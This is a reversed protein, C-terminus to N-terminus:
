TFIGVIIALWWHPNTATLLLLLYIFVLVLDIVYRGTRELPKKDISVLYGDWSAVTATLATLLIALQQLEGVNPLRTQQIWEAKSLTTAFGVSVAVAFIRRMFDDRIAARASRSKASQKGVSRWGNPSTLEARQGATYPTLEIM